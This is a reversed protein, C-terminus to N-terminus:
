FSDKIKILFKGLWIKYKSGLLEFFDNFLLLLLALFLLLGGLVQTLNFKEGMLLVSLTTSTLPEFLTAISAKTASSKKLGKTFIIYAIATPVIGLYLLIAWALWSLNVPIKIFPLMFLAGLTFTISIVKSTPYYVILKKGCLTYVSYSLGAGLALIYGWYSYINLNQNGRIGIILTTGVISVILSFFVIINIREKIFIRSLIAVFIPATCLAILTAISVMIKKVATFYAIQYTAVTIGYIIFLVYHKRDIKIKRKLQIKSVTLLIPSAILLRMAGITLASLSYLNILYKASIGATGFLIASLVILLLSPNM